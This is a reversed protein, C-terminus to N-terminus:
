YGSEEEYDVRDAYNRHVVKRDRKAKKVLRMRRKERRQRLNAIENELDLYNRYREEELDGSELAARIRCGRDDHHKCNRFECQEALADIDSFSERLSKEDTWMQVERMGPNDIVIGRGPLVIVERSTTTHRGKGTLTNVHGTAQQANGAIANVLTSKGVGSSGVLAAAKGIRFYADLVDFGCGHLSSIGHIPVNGAVTGLAATMERSASDDILDCKNILIVPQAGSRWALMMYREVRRLNLDVDADTVLIVHDINAAVVQQESSKGPAKRSFCTRRPLREHIIAESAGGGEEVAVWDGVAPLDANTEAQHWLKGTILAEHEIGDGTLVQYSIKNDGAVLAPELGREHCSAFHKEFFANWGLDELM